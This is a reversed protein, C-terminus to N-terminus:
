VFAILSGILFLLSAATAGILLMELGAIWFRRGSVRGKWGGSVFLFFLSIAISVVIAEFKTSSIAYGILPVFAGVLFSLGILLAVKLPRELSTEHIHLENMLQDELWKKKDTTIRNVVLESEEETLGKELYFSKLERREEDPEQEIESSERLSDARFLDNESRTAVLGGFFMSVAGALMAAVGAFRIVELNQTAGSFGALFAVNTIVGDSLGLVVDRIAGRGKIHQHKEEIRRDTTRQNSDRDESSSLFEQM